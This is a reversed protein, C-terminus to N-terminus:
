CSPGSRGTRPSRGSRRWSREKMPVTLANLADPRDLTITAIGDSVEYRLGAPRAADDTMRRAHTMRRRRGGRRVRRATGGVLEFSRRDIPEDSGGSQELVFDAFLEAFAEDGPRLSGATM